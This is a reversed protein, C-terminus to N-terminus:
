LVKKKNRNQDVEKYIRIWTLCIDIVALLPGLLISMMVSLGPTFGTVGDLSTQQARKHLKVM